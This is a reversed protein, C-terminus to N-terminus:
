KPLRTLGNMFLIGTMEMESAIYRRAVKCMNTKYKGAFNRQWLVPYHECIKGFHAWDEPSIQVHHIQLSFCHACGNGVFDCTFFYHLAIHQFLKRLCIYFMCHVKTLTPLASHMHGQQTRCM